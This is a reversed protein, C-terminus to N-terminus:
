RGPAHRVRQLVRDVYAVEREYDAADLAYGAIAERVYGALLERGRHIYNKVDGESKRLRAGASRYDCGDEAVLRMAEAYPTGRRESEQRLRELAVKLLNLVWLHDFADDQVGDGPGELVDPDLPVADWEGGRKAAREQKLLNGLVNRTVGILFSRFKGGERGVRTLVGNRLLVLFVQQAVDEARDVPLGRRVLFTVVAPRYTRAFAELAARDGAQVQQIMTWMTSQFSQFEVM